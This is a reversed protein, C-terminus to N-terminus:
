ISLEAQLQSDLHQILYFAVKPDFGFLRVVAASIAIEAMQKPQINM